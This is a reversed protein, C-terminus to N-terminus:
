RTKRSDIVIQPGNEKVVKKGLTTSTSIQMLTKPLTDM